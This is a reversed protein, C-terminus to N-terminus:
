FRYLFGVFNWGVNRVQTRGNSMHTYQARFHEGINYAGTFSYNLRTGSISKTKQLYAVGADLDAAVGIWGILNYGIALSADSGARSHWFLYQSGLNYPRYDYRIVLADAQKQTAFDRAAGVAMEAGATGGMGAIAAIAIISLLVIKTLIGRATLAM